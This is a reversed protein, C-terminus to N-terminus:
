NKEKKVRYSEHCSKCAKFVDAIATAFQAEGQAAAGAAATSASKLKEAAAQFGAMDSWIKPSAESKAVADSDTGPALLKAFADPAEAIATMAKAAAVGDFPVEGKSMQNGLKANKGVVEKMIARRETVPDDQALAAPIAIALGAGLLTLKVLTKM